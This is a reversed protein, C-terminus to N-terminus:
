ESDVPATDPPRNILSKITVNGTPIVKFKRVQGDFNFLTFLDDTQADLQGLSSLGYVDEIFHPIAAFDRQGHDVYNSRAFPGIVM